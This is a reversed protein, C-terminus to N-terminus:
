PQCDYSGNASSASASFGNATGTSHVCVGDVYCEAPGFANTCPLVLRGLAILNRKISNREPLFAVDTLVPTPTSNCHGGGCNTINSFYTVNVGVSQTGTRRVCSYGQNNLGGGQQRCTATFDPDITLTYGASCRM